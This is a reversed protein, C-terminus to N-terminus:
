TADQFINKAAWDVMKQIKSPIFVETGGSVAVALQQVTLLYRDSYDQTDFGARNLGRRLREDLRSTDGFSTRVEIKKKPSDEEFASKVVPAACAVQDVMGPSKLLALPPISMGRNAFTRINKHWYELLRRPTVGKVLCQIGADIAYQRETEPIEYSFISARLHLSNEAQRRYRVYIRGFEIGIKDLVRKRTADRKHRSIIELLEDRMDSDPDFSIIPNGLQDLKSFDVRTNTKKSKPKSSVVAKRIKNARAAGAAMKQKFEEGKM